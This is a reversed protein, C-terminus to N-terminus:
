SRLLAYKQYLDSFLFCRLVFVVLLARCKGRAEEGPRTSDLLHVNNIGESQELRGCGDRQFGEQIVNNNNRHNTPQTLNSRNSVAIVIRLDSM